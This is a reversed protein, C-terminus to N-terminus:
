WKVFYLGSDIDDLLQEHRKMRKKKGKEWKIRWNREKKENRELWEWFERERRYEEASPVVKREIISENISEFNNILEIISDVPMDTM